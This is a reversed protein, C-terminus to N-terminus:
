AGHGTHDEIFRRLAAIQDAPRGALALWGGGFAATALEDPPTFRDGLAIAAQGLWESPNVPEASPGAARAAAMMLRRVARVRPQIIDEATTDDLEATDRVVLRAMDLGLALLSGAADDPLGEVLRANGRLAHDIRQERAALELATSGGPPEVWLASRPEPATQASQGASQGAAAQQMM